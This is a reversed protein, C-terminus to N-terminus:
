AKWFFMTGADYWEGYWGFEDLIERIEKHVGFQYRVEKYDEAYYDFLRFEDAATIGNETGAVWIGSKYSPGFEEADRLDITPYKKTIADILKQRENNM